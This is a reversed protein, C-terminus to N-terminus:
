FHDRREFGSGAKLLGLYKFIPVNWGYAIVDHFVFAIWLSILMIESLFMGLTTINRIDTANARTEHSWRAIAM